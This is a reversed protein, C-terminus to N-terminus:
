FETKKHSWRFYFKASATIEPRGTSRDRKVTITGIHVGFDPDGSMRAEMMELLEIAVKEVEKTQSMM